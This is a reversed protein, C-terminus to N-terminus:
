ASRRRSRRFDRWSSACTRKLRPVWKAEFRPADNGLDAVGNRSGKRARRRPTARGSRTTALGAAMRCSARQGLELPTACRGAFRSRSSRKITATGGRRLVETVSPFDEIPERYYPLSAVFRQIRRLRERHESPPIGRVLAFATERLLPEEAASLGLETLLRTKAQATLVRFEHRM